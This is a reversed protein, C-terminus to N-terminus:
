DYIYNSGCYSCHYNHPGVMDLPSGCNKCKAEKLEFVREPEKDVIPVPDYVVTTSATVQVPVIPVWEQIDDHYIMFQDADTCYVINGHNPKRDLDSLTKVTQTQPMMTDM